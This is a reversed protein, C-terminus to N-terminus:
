LLVPVSGNLPNNLHIGVLEGGEADSEVAALVPLQLERADKTDVARGDVAEGLAVLDGARDLHRELAQELM